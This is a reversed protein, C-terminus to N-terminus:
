PICYLLVDISFYLITDSDTYPAFPPPFIDVKRGGRESEMTSKELLKDFQYLIRVLGGFFIRYLVV